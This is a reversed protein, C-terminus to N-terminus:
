VSKVARMMRLEKEVADIDQLPVDEPIKEPAAKQSNYIAGQFHNWILGQVGLEPGDFYWQTLQMPEGASCSCSQNMCHASITRKVPEHATTLKVVTPHIVM